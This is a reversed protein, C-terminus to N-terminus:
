GRNFSVRECDDAIRDGPDALVTDRGAGCSVVDRDDTPCRNLDITQIDDGGNGGRLVDASTDRAEDFATNGNDNLFDDDAGGSPTDPGPGGNLDDM